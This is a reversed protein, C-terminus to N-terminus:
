AHKRRNFATINRSSARRQSETSKTLGTRWAHRKNEQPTCWKLNELRNDARVGNLHNVQARPCPPDGLFAHAVLRHVYKNQAKGGNCLCVYEYGFNNVCKSLWRGKSRSVNPYAWVLGEATVAYSGEYGVCDRMM